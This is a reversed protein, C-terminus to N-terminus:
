INIIDVTAPAERARSQTHIYIYTAPEAMCHLRLSKDTHGVQM